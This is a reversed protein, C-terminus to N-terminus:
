FDPVWGCGTCLKCKDMKEKSHNGKASCNEQRDMVQFKHFFLRKMEFYRLLRANNYVLPGYGHRNLFTLYHLNSLLPNKIAYKM